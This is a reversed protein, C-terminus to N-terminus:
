QRAGGVTRRLYADADEGPLPDLVGRRGSPASGTWAPFTEAFRAVSYFQAPTAIVYARYATATLEAGHEGELAKLTPVMRGIAQRTPAMGYAEKYAGFYPGFWPRKEEPEPPLGELPLTEQVEKPKRSRTRKKIETLHLIGL